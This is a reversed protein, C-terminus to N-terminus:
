IFAQMRRSLGITQTHLREFCCSVRKDAVSIKVKFTNISLLFLIGLFNNQAHTHTQKQRTQNLPYTPLNGIHWHSSVYVSNPVFDTSCRSHM